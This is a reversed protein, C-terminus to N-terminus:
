HTQDRFAEHTSDLFGTVAALPYQIHHLCGLCILLKRQKTNGVGEGRISCLLNHPSILLPSPHCLRALVSLLLVSGSLPFLSHCALLSTASMSGESTTFNELMSLPMSCALLNSIFIFFAALLCLFHSKETGLAM